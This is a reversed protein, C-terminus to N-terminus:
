VRVKRIGGVDDSNLSTERLCKRFEDIAERRYPKGPSASVYQLYESPPTEEPGLRGVYHRGATRGKRRHDCLLITLHAASTLVLWSKWYFV